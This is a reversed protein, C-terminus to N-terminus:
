DVALDVAEVQVVRVRTGCPLAAHPQYDGGVRVRHRGEPVKLPAHLHGPAGPGTRVIHEVCPADVLQTRQEPPVPVACLAPLRSMVVSLGLKTASFDSLCPGGSGCAASASIRRM